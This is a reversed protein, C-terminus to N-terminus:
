PIRGQGLYRFPNTCHVTQREDEGGSRDAEAKGNYVPRPIFGCCCGGVDLPNRQKRTSTQPREAAKLLRKHKDGHM